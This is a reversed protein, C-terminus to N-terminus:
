GMATTPVRLLPMVVDDVVSVVYDDPVPPGEALFRQMVLAPGVEAVLPSAAEPRVQGRDAGRRLLTLFMQKRPEKVRQHLLRAFPHDRDIEAMLCQLACGTPSNLMAAMRRLLDLLNDRVDGHDPLDAPSPLAHELADVVLDEKRPWRRYLAAKGTHAGAAVGEMTLGVYGVAQLQDFVADYIARELTEGRRRMPPCPYAPPGATRDAKAAM